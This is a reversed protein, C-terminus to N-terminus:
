HHLKYQSFAVLIVECWDDVWYSLLQVSQSHLEAHHRPLNLLQAWTHTGHLAIAYLLVIAICAWSSCQLM